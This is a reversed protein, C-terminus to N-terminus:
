QLEEGSQCSYRVRLMGPLEAPDPVTWSVQAVNRFGPLVVVAVHQIRLNPMVFILKQVIYRFLINVILVALEALTENHTIFPAKKM